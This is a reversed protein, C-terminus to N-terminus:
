DIEFWTLHMLANAPDPSPNTVKILMESGAGVIVFEDPTITNGGSSRSGSDTAGRVIELDYREGDASVTCKRFLAQSPKELAYNLNRIPIETTYGTFTAGAYIEMKTEPRNSSIRRGYCFVRKAGAKFSYNVAQGAPISENFFARYSNGALTMSQVLSVQPSGYKLSSFSM